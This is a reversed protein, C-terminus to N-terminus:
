NLLKAERITGVNCPELECGPTVSVQSAVLHRMM